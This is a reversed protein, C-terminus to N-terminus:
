PKRLIRSPFHLKCSNFQCKGQPAHPIKGSTSRHNQKLKFLSYAQWYMSAERYDANSESQKFNEYAKKYSQKHLAKQGAEYDPHQALSTCIIATSLALALTTKKFINM